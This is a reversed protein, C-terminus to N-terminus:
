QTSETRTSETRTSETHTSETHTSETNIPPSESGNPSSRFFFFYIAVISILVILALPYSAFVLAPQLGPHANEIPPDNGVAADLVPSFSGDTGVPKEEMITRGNKRVPPNVKPNDYPM